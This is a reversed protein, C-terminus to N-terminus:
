ALTDGAVVRLGVADRDRGLAHDDGGARGRTEDEGEEREEVRAIAQASFRSVPKSLSPQLRCAESLLWYVGNEVVIKNFDGWLNRKSEPETTIDLFKTQTWNTYPLWFFEFHEHEQQYTVLNDLCDDLSRRHSLFHLRRAPVVRLTIEALIGLTGLSVQAAKFLEPHEEASCKLLEGTATVLTLVEVQTSLTGYGIGTGHTGTSIAGAISQVDIDGLNEQSLGHAHLAKGLDHLRTGGLVTVRTNTADIQTIGSLADLSLLTDDTQVLPTFSHGGGVVRVHRGAAAADKVIQRLEDITTPKLRQRPTCAVSGSWNSWTHTDTTAM